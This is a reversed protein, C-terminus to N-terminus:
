FGRPLSPRFLSNIRGGATCALFMNELFSNKEGGTPWFLTLGQSSVYERKSGELVMGRLLRGPPAPNDSPARGGFM